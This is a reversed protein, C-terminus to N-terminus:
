SRLFGSAVVWCLDLHPPPRPAQMVCVRVGLGVARTVYCGGIGPISVGGGRGKRADGIPSGFSRHEGAGEKTLSLARCSRFDHRDPAARARQRPM